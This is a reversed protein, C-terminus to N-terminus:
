DTRQATKWLQWWKRSNDARQARKVRQYAARYIPFSHFSSASCILIGEADPVKEAMELLERGNMTVNISGPYNRSFLDPDACAKIMRRGSPDAVFQMRVVGSGDIVLKQGPEAKPLGSMLLGFVSEHFMSELQAVARNDGTASMKSILESIDM